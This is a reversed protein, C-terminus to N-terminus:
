SWLHYMTKEAKVRALEEEDKANIRKMNTWDAGRSTKKTVLVSYVGKARVEKEMAKASMECKKEQERRSKKVRTM